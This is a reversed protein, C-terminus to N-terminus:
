PNLWRYGIGRETRICNFDPDISKFRDRITKVHATITNNEVYVNAAKMLVTYSKVIGPNTAMEQLIWFQTLTLDLMSGKWKAMLRDADIELNEQCWLNSPESQQNVADSATKLTEIRRFLAEIRVLLYDITIDKTLYDDAGLRMGSIRDVENSHSTLFIIPLQPSMERLESCLRFGGEREENLSIDLLVLDPLDLKLATLAERRSAYAQVQFGEDTLIEQYNERIVDDDEVLALRKRQFM